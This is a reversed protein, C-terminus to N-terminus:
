QVMEDAQAVLDRGQYDSLFAESRERWSARRAFQEVDFPRVSEPGVDARDVSPAAFCHDAEGGVIGGANWTRTM